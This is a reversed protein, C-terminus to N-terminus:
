LKIKMTVHPIEAEIFDEGFTELGLKEYFGAARKQAHIVIEPAGKEKALNILAKVVTAGYGKGRECKLVAVRGISWEGNVNVLRATAAAKGDEFLVAHAANDDYEDNEIERPVGQEGCFVEYRIPLAFNKLQEFTGIQIM